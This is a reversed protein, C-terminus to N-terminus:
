KLGRPSSIKEIKGRPKGRASQEAVGSIKM